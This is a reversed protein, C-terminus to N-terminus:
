SIKLITFPQNGRPKNDASARNGLGSLYKLAYKLSNPPSSPVFGKILLYTVNYM